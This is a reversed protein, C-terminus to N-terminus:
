LEQLINIASQVMVCCPIELLDDDWQFDPSHHVVPEDANESIGVFFFCSPVKEAYFAFDEGGMDPQEMDVAYEEGLAQVVSRRVVAAVEPDNIVPGNANDAELVYEANEMATVCQLVEEILKMIKKRVEVDFIRLTGLVKVENPLVNYRNGGNISCFSLVGEDFVNLKRPMRSYIMNVAQCALWITDTCVDPAAGHGGSGRITFSVVDPAAMVAKPKVGVKGKPLAGWLHCGVAFDVPPDELVGAQVMARGGLEYEEAPQFTLKVTGKIEDRMENLIRAAGLLAAVHGDHGCAHMVGPNRSAFELGTNEEIALADMDARLMVTKGPQSGRILGVVGTGSVVKYEIGMAELESQIFKSTEFEKNSLEPYQHLRRRVKKMYDLQARCTERM